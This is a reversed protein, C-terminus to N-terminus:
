RGQGREQTRRLVDLTGLIECETCDHEPDSHRPEYARVRRRHQELDLLQAHVAQFREEPTMSTM